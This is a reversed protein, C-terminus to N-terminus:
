SQIHTENKDGAMEIRHDSASVRKDDSLASVYEGVDKLLLDAQESLGQATIALTDRAVQSGQVLDMVTNMFKMMSYLLNLSARINDKCVKNM